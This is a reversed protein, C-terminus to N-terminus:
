DANQPSIAVAPLRPLAETPATPSETATTLTLLKCAFQVMSAIVLMTLLIFLKHKM